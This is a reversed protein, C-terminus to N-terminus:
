RQERQARKVETTSLRRRSAGYLARPAKGAGNSEPEAAAKAAPKRKRSTKKRGTSSSEEKADDSKSAATRTAKKKTKKRTTAAKATKKSTKKSSSRSRKKKSAAKSEEAGAEEPPASDAPPSEEAKATADAQAATKKKRSRRRKKKGTAPEGDRDGTEPAPSEPAETSSAEDPADKAGTSETRATEAEESSSGGGRGRRRRRKRRRKGSGEPADTAEGPTASSDTSEDRKADTDKSEGDEAGQEARDAGGRGRGRRRRRRRRKKGKKPSDEETASEDFTDFLENPDEEPADDGVEVAVDQAPEHAWDEDPDAAEYPVFDAKRAKHSPLKEVVVDAGRSDYAYFTVRDLTISDSVRVDIVKGSTRELRSLSRRKSSLLAGAIRPSVVMEARAVREHALLASLERLADAVVSDPRQVMGRGTCMPCSAFHQSELSGRMRQRTMEMTGFPGIPAITSRARDKRLLEKFRGEVQKRHKHFRMDILDNVVIGGLDRLKLQRCIEEAAEMNTKYANTEADRVDRMKGSNVDIAVLAETEDIVLRGGSPLPVERAHMMRIQDEIGTSHFIPAPATYRALKTATRPAVIKLFRAARRLANEDDIVIQEIDGSVVDRLTRVLLDSEAYLLRPGRGKKWRKQMDKWLRQLYALDRKLETKTRDLGATRVIFGFEKPLDLSDLIERVRRRSDEDDAKRSVGVRDMNPMMVLFRGPISLYSTVTPGKTGVGEKLVQVVIEQDRKLCDQIPPRDRRPTKKGVRETTEDDEGPFYQPHLDSIHLFGNHELGFDVFAAQISPEVNTVRGVYINNVHSIADAREAYFEQLKGNEVVAIRCEQAPVYNVYMQRGTSAMVKDKRTANRRVGICGDCVRSAVVQAFRPASRPRDIM